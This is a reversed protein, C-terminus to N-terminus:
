ADLNKAAQGIVTPTAGSTPYNMAYSGGHNPVLSNQQSTGSVSSSPLGAAFNPSIVGGLGLAEAMMAQDHLNYYSGMPHGAHLLNWSSSYSSSTPVITTSSTVVAQHLNRSTTDSFGYNPLDIFSSTTTAATSTCSVANYPAVATANMTTMTDPLSSTSNFYMPDIMSDLFSDDGDGTAADVSISSVNPTGASYEVAAKKEEGNDKHFVKCVVWEDKPSHHLNTNQRSKGELRFEHMVWNTKSGRPARGMYFVLTKKMGVLERGGTSASSPQKFIERDKGTAKWYGVKTARNTRMGTPYKMDKHSFFYWEKEGLKAKSPLDWPECKNFNVEGMARPSFSPNLFKQLLYSTIVEEDTPHFRFGPPLFLDGQESKVVREVM